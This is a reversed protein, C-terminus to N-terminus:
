PRQSRTHVHEFWLELVLLLWILKIKNRSFLQRIIDGNFYERIHSDSSLLRDEVFSRKKGNVSFWKLLPPTFGMKKRYVFNENFDKRLIKKLLYKGNSSNKMSTRLLMSTPIRSAFEAVVKDAFPTRVELSNMMSAIDVKCLMSSPFAVKLDLYQAFQVPTLHTSSTSLDAFIEPVANAAGIFEKKWLQARLENDFFGTYNVWNQVSPVYREYYRTSYRTPYVHHAVPYLVKKWFPLRRYSASFEGNTMSQWREYTYYGCFLEDAGDGSLVVHVQNSALRSLYFTPVCSEDGFPEGYHKILQSLDDISEYSVIEKYHETKYQNSAIDSYTLESYESEDFGISFTKPTNTGQLETMYKVLLTSDIGGSLFAGVPVDAVLHHKVSDRLANELEYAWEDEDLSHDTSFHLDWYLEKLKVEGQFTVIMREAPAMKFAYRYITNPPPIYRLLLFEDISQINITKDFQPLFHFAQLESAFAFYNRDNYFLLPKIGIHDRALFITENNTDIIAFAFMGRFYEVCHKGWEEYAHIIVETDSQTRFIHGKNLLVARIERYNYIEGNYTIWVTGNENAMPQAGTELDIIALRRHGIGVNKYTYVGKGHPGRHTLSTTMSNMIHSDAAHGNKNLFGVIGCMDCRYGKM